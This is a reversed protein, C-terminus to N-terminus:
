AGEGEPSPNPHPSGRVHAGEGGAGRGSPSPLPLLATGPTPDVVSILPKRINWVLPTTAESNDYAAVDLPRRNWCQM